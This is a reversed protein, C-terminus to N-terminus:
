GLRIMRREMKLPRADWQTAEEVEPSDMVEEYGLFLSGVREAWQEKEEVVLVFPYQSRQGELSGLIIGTFTRSELDDSVAEGLLEARAFRAGGQEAELVAWVRSGVGNATGQEDQSGSMPFQRFTVCMTWADLWVFPSLAAQVDKMFGMTEFREWSMVQGDNTEVRVGVDTADGWEHQSEFINLASSRESYGRFSVAGEWGTWCWSPFGARRKVGPVGAAATGDARWCLGLLFGDSTSRSLAVVGDGCDDGALPMAVPPLIPSGWLHYVPYETNQFARLIGAFANIADSPYTLRRRSYERILKALTWPRLYSGPYSLNHSQKRPRSRDLRPARVEMMWSGRIRAGCARLLVM